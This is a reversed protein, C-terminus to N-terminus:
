VIRMIWTFLSCNEDIDKEFGGRRALSIPEFTKSSLFITINQDCLPADLDNSAV